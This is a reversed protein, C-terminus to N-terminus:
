YQLKGEFEWEDNAAEKFLLLSRDYWWTVWQGLLSFRKDHEQPDIKEHNEEEGDVYIQHPEVSLDEEGRFQRSRLRIWDNAIVIDDPSICTPPM